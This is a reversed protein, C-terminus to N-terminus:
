YIITVWIWSTPLWTDTWSWGPFRRDCYFSCYWFKEWWRSNQYWQWNTDNGCLGKHNWPIYYTSRTDEIKAYNKARQKVPNSRIPIVYSNDDLYRKINVIQIEKEIKLNLKSNNRSIFKSITRCKDLGLIYNIHCWTLSPISVYIRKIDEAESEKLRILKKQKKNDERAGWNNTNCKWKVKFIARERRQIKRKDRINAFVKNNMLTIRDDEDLTDIGTLNVKGDILHLSTKIKM